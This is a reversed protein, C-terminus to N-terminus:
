EVSSYSVIISLEGEFKIENDETTLIFHKGKEIEFNEGDINIKGNGEIVTILCYDHPKEYDLVGQIDWKEVTFFENSVFQTFKQGNRHKEIPETNPDQNSIDIVDKSQELHLDRTNGDKDKRDYDYIRYTTDSSQQTELIMIGSEESLSEIVEFLMNFIFPYLKKINGALPNNLYVKKVIRLYTKSFPLSKIM